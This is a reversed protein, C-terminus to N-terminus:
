KRATRLPQSPERSEGDSYGLRYGRAYGDCYQQARARKGTSGTCHPLVFDFNDVPRPDSARQHVGAKYGDLFGEDFDVDPTQVPDMGVASVRAAEFARFERGSLADSYGLRFGTRYGSRYRDRRGFIPLYGATGKKYERTEEPLRATRNGMQLDVDAMHFADEYGHMYGHAFASSPLISPVAKGRLHRAECEQASAQNYTVILFLLSLSLAPIRLV